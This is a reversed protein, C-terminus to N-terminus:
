FGGTESVGWVGVVFEGSKISKEMFIQQGFMTRGDCTKLSGLTIYGLGSILFSKSSEVIQGHWTVNEVTTVSAWSEVQMDLTGPKSKSHSRATPKHKKDKKVKRWTGVPNTIKAASSDMLRQGEYEHIQYDKAETLM